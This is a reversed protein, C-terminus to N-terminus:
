GNDRGGAPIVRFAHAAADTKRENGGWTWYLGLYAEAHSEGAITHGVRFLLDCGGCVEVDNYYGGFNFFTAHASDVSPAGQAFVEGGLTLKESLKRELLWAVLTTTWCAPPVTSHADEGETLRGLDSAKKFGCRFLGGLAAM